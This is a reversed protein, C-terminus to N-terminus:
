QYGTHYIHEKQPSFEKNRYEIYKDLYDTLCRGLLMKKSPFLEEIKLLDTKSLMAFTYSLDSEKMWIDTSSRKSKNEYKKGDSFYRYRSIEIYIKCEGSKNM